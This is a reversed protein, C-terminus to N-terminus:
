AVILGKYVWQSAPVIMSASAWIPLLISVKFIDYYSALWSVLVLLFLQSYWNPFNPIGIAWCYRFLLDISSSNSCWFLLFVFVYFYCVFSPLWSFNISLCLIVVNWWFFNGFVPSRLPIHGFSEAGATISPKNPSAKM